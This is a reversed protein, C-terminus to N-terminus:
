VFIFYILLGIIFVIIETILYKSPKLYLDKFWNPNGKEEVKKILEENGWSVFPQSFNTLGDKDAFFKYRVKKIPWLWKIGWGTGISDHIFHSLVCGLYLFSYQHGLLLFIFISIILHILPYHTLEQHFGLKKGGLTKRQILEVPVDIDPSLIALIAFLTTIGPAMDCTNISISALILAIGIDFFM